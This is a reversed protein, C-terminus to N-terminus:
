KELAEKYLYDITVAHSIFEKRICYKVPLHKIMLRKLSELDLPFVKEMGCSTYPDSAGQELIGYPGDHPDVLFNGSNIIKRLDEKLLIWCGQHNNHCTFFDNYSKDVLNGYYPNHVLVKVGYIEEYQIFGCLQNEKLEKSVDIFCDINDETILHDNENFIFIDYNELDAAMEQRCQFPLSTTISEPFLIHNVQLPVTTFVKIDVDHKKYSNFERIVKELCDLQTDGFNSICVKIRM